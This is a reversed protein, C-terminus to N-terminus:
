GYFSAPHYVLIHEQEQLAQLPVALDFQPYLERRWGAFLM